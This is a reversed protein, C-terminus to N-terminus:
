KKGKARQAAAAAEARRQAAEREQKEWYLRQSASKAARYLADALDRTMSAETHLERAVQLTGKGWVNSRPGSWAVLSRIAQAQATVSLAALQEAVRDVRGAATSLIDPLRPDTSM